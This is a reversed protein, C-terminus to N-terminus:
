MLINATCIHKHCRGWRVAHSQRSKLVSRTVLCAIGVGSCIWIALHVSMWVVPSRVFNNIPLRKVYVAKTDYQQLNRIRLGDLAYHAESSM